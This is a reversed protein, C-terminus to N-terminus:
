TWSRAYRLTTQEDLEHDTRLREETIFEELRRERLRELARRRAAAQLLIEQARDTAAKREAVVQEQRRARQSAQDVFLLLNMRGDPDIAMGPRIGERQSEGVLGRLGNLTALAAQGEQVARAYALQATQEAHVRQRLAADLRFTFAKSV